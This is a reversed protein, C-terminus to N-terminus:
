EPALAALEHRGGTDACVDLGLLRMIVDVILNNKGAVASARMYADVQPPTCRCCPASPCDAELLAPATHPPMLPLTHCDRAARRAGWRVEPDPTIGM